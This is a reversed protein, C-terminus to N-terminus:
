DELPYRVMLEEFTYTCQQPIDLNYERLVVRRAREYQKNIDLKNLLTQTLRDEIEDQFNDVEKIWHNRPYIEQSYDLKLRHEILRKLLSNVANLKENGLDEIEEKLNEWDLAAINHEKLAQAQEQTWKIFDTEYVNTM